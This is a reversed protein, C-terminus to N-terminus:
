MTGRLKSTTSSSGSVGVPLSARRQDSADAFPDPHRCRDCARSTARCRSGDDQEDGRIREEDGFSEVARARTRDARQEQDRQERENRRAALVSRLHEWQKQPAEAEERGHRDGRGGGIM